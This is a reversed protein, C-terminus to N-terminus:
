NGSYAKARAEIDKMSMGLSLLVQKTETESLGADVVNEFMQTLKAPDTTLKTKGSATQTVKKTLPDVTETMIPEQYLAKINNLVQNATLGTYKTTPQQSMDYDLTAWARANDDQSLALQAQRYSQDNQQSLNQLGYNLGYQRVDEDFKAQWQKDSIADRAKQYAFQETQMQQDATLPTNPNEAQRYLGSWDTQPTVVRGTLQSVTNAASFNDNRTNRSNDIGRQNQDALYQLATNANSFQNQNRTDTVGQQNMLAELINYSNSRENQNRTDYVGQQGSLASVLSQLNALGQQQQAQNASVLQPIVQLQLYENADNQTRQARDTVLSSRGLGSAGLSEQTQRITADANRQAAAQQAAYEASTYPDYPTPNNIKQTLQSLVDAIQNDYPNVAAPQNLQSLQQTIQSDYPNVTAQPNVVQQTLKNATNLQNIQGQASNLMAQNVYATNNLNAGPKFINQGDITVYGNNYGIRNNDVGMNNLAQRAQIGYASNPSVAAPSAVQAAPNTAAAAQNTSTPTTSVTGPTPKNTLVAM